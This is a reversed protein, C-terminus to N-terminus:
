LDTDQDTESDIERALKKASNFLNKLSLRIFHLLNKDAASLGPRSLLQSVADLTKIIGIKFKLSLWLLVESEDYALHRNLNLNALYQRGIFCALPAILFLSALSLLSASSNLSPSLFLILVLSYALTLSPPHQFAITFLLFYILFFVPSNLGHTTFVLLNVIFSLLYFIYPLRYLLFFIFLISLLALLQPLFYTYSSLSFLYSILATLSFFLLTILSKPM